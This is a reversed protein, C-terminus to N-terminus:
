FQTPEILLAKKNLEIEKYAEKRAIRLIGIEDMIRNALVDNPKKRKFLTGTSRAEEYDERLKSIREGLELYCNVYSKNLVVEATNTNNTM